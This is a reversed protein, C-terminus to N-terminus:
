SAMRDPQTYNFLELHERLRSAKMESMTVELLEYFALLLLIVNLISESFDGLGFALFLLIVCSLLLWYKYTRVTYQKTELDQEIIVPSTLLGFKVKIAEGYPKANFGQSRLEKILENM